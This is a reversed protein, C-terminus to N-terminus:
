VLNNLIIESFKVKMVIVLNKILKFLFIV